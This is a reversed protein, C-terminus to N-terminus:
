SGWFFLLCVLGFWVLGSGFISVSISISGKKGAHVLVGTLRYDAQKEPGSVPLRLREPYAIGKGIKSFRSGFM